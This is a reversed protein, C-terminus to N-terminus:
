QDGGQNMSALKEKLLTHAISKISVDDDIKQLREIDHKITETLFNIDNSSFIWGEIANVFYDREDDITVKWTPVFVQVGNALPVRTHFGIDVNTITDGPYLENTNYLTEIAKIPTILQKKDQRATADGLVTQTYFTIEEDENLFVLVVGNQNFFVPRDHKQQFFILVNLEENWDWFAYQDPFVILSKVITEIDEISKDSINIPKKLISVIFNNVIATEQDKLKEIIQIEDETFIKPSVTIFSENEAENPLDPISINEDELRQEITSEEQELIGMNEQDQKDIFQMILYIDLILFSLIFLTKIQGWQM